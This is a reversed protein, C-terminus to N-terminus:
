DGTIDVVKWGLLELKQGIYSQFERNEALNWFWASDKDRKPLKPWNRSCEIRRLGKPWKIGGRAISANKLTYKAVYGVAQGANELQRWDAIYGIGCEAANNKAWRTGYCQNILVHNHFSGDKHQEWVRCYSLENENRLISSVIRNSLKKWGQRLNEVSETQRKQRHSTITLMSWSKEDRQMLFLIRAIWAKTNRAACTECDWCKCAAKTLLATKNENDVGILYKTNPKTCNKSSSIQLQEIYTLGSEASSFATEQSTKNKKSSVM